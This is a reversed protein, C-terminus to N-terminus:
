SFLDVILSILVILVGIMVMHISPLLTITMFFSLATTKASHDVSKKSKVRKKSFFHADTALRDNAWKINFLITGIIYFIVGLAIIWLGYKMMVYHGM